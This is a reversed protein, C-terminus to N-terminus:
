REGRGEILRVARRVIEREKPYRLIRLAEEVPFWRVEDFERDHHSLSGGAPVMLHHEVRKDYRRGGPGSFQYRISGVREQITVRLGTEEEVERTATRELREGQEPSGKPLVWLEESLRGCLVVEIVHRRRRYVIGGASVVHQIRATTARGAM